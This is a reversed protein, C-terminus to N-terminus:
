HTGAPFIINRTSWYKQDLYRLHDPNNGRELAMYYSLYYLPLISLFPSLYEHSRPLEAVADAELTTDTVALTKAGLNRSAGLLTKAREVSPGRPAIVVVLTQEDLFVWAGHLLEELEMGEAAIFSTEKMKLAAERATVFNPGAGAFVVKRVSSLSRAFERMPAESMTSAEALRRGLEGNFEAAVEDVKHGLVEALQLSLVFAAAASDTYTKTHCRSLDPGDGVSLSLDVVDAIPRKEFHTIGVTFADNEGAAKLADITSKTIGSHSVGVALSSPQFNYYHPVELAHVADWPAGLSGLLQSGMLASYYGTGSGTFLVRGPILKLSVDRTQRLVTEFSRPIARIM